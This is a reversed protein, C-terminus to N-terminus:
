VHIRKWVSDEPSLPILASKSPSDTLKQCPDCKTIMYEMDKDLWPWWVYNRALAKTKVIGLHSRHVPELVEKYLKKPVITSYGWMLCGYEISLETHKPIFPQFENDLSQITGHEIAKIVKSL